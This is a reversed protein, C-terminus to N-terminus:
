YDASCAPPARMRSATRGAGPGATPSSMEGFGNKSEFPLSRTVAAAGAVETAAAADCGRPAAAAGLVAGAPSDAGSAEGVNTVDDGSSAGAGAGPAGTAGRSRRVASPTNRMSSSETLRKLSM